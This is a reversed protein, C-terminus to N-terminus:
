KAAMANWADAVTEFGGAQIASARLSITTTKLAALNAETIAPSVTIKGDGALIDATLETNPELVRYYIYRHNESDHKLFEWGEAVTWSLQSGVAFTNETKTWNDSLILEAFVITTMESGGFHVTADKKLDVGPIIMGKKVGTGDFDGTESITLEGFKAVRASDSGQGTAVYRALVGGLLYVTIVTLIFLVAAARIMIGGLNVPSKGNNQKSM